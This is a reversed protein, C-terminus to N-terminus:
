WPCTGIDRHHPQKAVANSRYSEELHQLPLRRNLPVLLPRSVREGGFHKKGMVEVFRERTAAGPRVTKLEERSRGRKGASRGSNSVSWGQIFRRMRVDWAKQGSFDRFTVFGIFGFHRCLRLPQTEFSISIPRSIKARFAGDNYPGNAGTL